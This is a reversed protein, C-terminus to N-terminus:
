HRLRHDRDFQALKERIRHRDCTHVELTEEFALLLQRARMSVQGCTELEVVRKWQKRIHEQDLAVKDEALALQNILTQRELVPLGERSGVTDTSGSHLYEGLAPM